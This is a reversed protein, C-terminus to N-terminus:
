IKGYGDYSDRYSGGSPRDMYGRPERGGGYGDRDSPLIVLGKTTSSIIILIYLVCSGEWMGMDEQCQGMTMELVLIPTIETHIIELPLAMTGPTEPILTGVPTATFNLM